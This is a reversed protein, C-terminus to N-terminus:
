YGRKRDIINHLPRGAFYRRLNESYIDFVIDAALRDRDIGSIHPTIVAGPCDWLPSDSPLPEPDTVDLLAGGLRGSALAAALADGDVCSGRGVNILIAGRKMQAFRAADFLRKTEGTSPLCLAVVDADQIADNLRETPYIHEFHEPLDGVRRRVGTVHAGLLACRRAFNGGLDGVGVVTVRSGYLTSIGPYQTWEHKKQNDLYQPMRRQIMLLGCLMYESIAIGYAGSGSTLVLEPNAYLDDALFAEVGASPTQLWKLKLASRLMEPTFFGMLLEIESLDPRELDMPFVVFEYGEPNAIESLKRMHEEHFPARRLGIKKM